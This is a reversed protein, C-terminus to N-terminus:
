LSRAVTYYAAQSLAEKLTEDALDSIANVAKDAYSKAETLAEDIAGYTELFSVATEFDGDHIDGEGITRQWFAKEAEDGQEYALIVPMTIKGDNFDDGSNKGMVSLDSRYDLADDVIQFAMGLSLGYQHLKNILSPEAGAVKAGSAAAAAFLIATKGTIVDLYDSLPSDPKGAMTMQKVEGETIRASASSLMGLVAIDDTEVMLEFARAFLFDGVLVSAENGWLANATDRGRRKDSEDIVDDHLLTANHIFEVSAALLLARDDVTQQNLQAAYAGALCLLPRMRKGGAAILHNALQPIMPVDSDMRTIIVENVRSMDDKLLTSLATISPTLPQTM